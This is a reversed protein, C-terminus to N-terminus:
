KWRPEIHRTRVTEAVEILRDDPQLLLEARVLLPDAVRPEDNGRDPHPRAVGFAMLLDVNGDRDPLLELRRMIEDPEVGRVHLAARAPRLRRTLLAAGLEGGLEVQEALGEKEVREALKTLDAGPKTRCTRLFLKPRLTHAYGEEWERLMAGPDRVEFKGRKTTRIWGRMRLERLIWGVGGLAIDARAALDRYTAPECGQLIVCLLKLGATHLARRAGADPQKHRQGTVWVLLGKDHICANGAADVFDFNQARLKKALPPPVHKTLLLVREHDARLARLQHLLPGHAAPEVRTKLEAAWDQAGLPGKLRIWADPPRTAGHNAAQKKAVLKAQLGLARLEELYPALAEQQAFKEAITRKM